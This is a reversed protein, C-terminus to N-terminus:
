TNDGRIMKVKERMAYRQLEKPLKSQKFLTEHQPCFDFAGYQNACNECLPLDCTEYTARFDISTVIYETVYDCLRTAVQRKCIPCPNEFVNPHNM